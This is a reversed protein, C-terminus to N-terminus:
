KDIDIHFIYEHLQDFIQINNLYHPIRIMQIQHEICYNNKITDYKQILEFQQDGGFYPIPKTHQEGDYEIIMNKDPIYFDFKLRRNTHPSICDNFKHQKIFPINNQLLWNEILLEGKSNIQCSPCGSRNHLHNSATVKFLGHIPCIIDIYGSSNYNVYDYQDGHVKRAETVFDKLHKTVSKKMSEKGCQPCGAKRYIHDSLTQKFIDHIPCIIDVKKRIDYAQLVLSYDYKNNHIQNAKQIFFDLGKSKSNSTRKIGCLKCGDGQLHRNPRQSFTGHVPCIINVKTHTTQYEVLSYDYKNNHVNHAEIIFQQTTKKSM